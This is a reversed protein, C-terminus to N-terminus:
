RVIGRVLLCDFLVRTYKQDWWACLRPLFSFDYINVGFLAGCKDKLKEIM